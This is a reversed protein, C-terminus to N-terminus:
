WWSRALIRAASNGDVTSRVARCMLLRVVRRWQVRLLTVWLVSRFSPLPVRTEDTSAIRNALHNLWVAFLAVRRARVDMVHKWDFFERLPLEAYVRRVSLLIQYSNTVVTVARRQRAAVEHRGFRRLEFERLATTLPRGVLALATVNLLGRLTCLWARCIHVASSHSPHLLLRSLTCVKCFLAHSQHSEGITEGRNRTSTTVNRQTNHAHERTDRTSPSSM